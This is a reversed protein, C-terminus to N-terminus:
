MSCMLDPCALVKGIRGRLDTALSCRATASYHGASSASIGPRPRTKTSLIIYHM